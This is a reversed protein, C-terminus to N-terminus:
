VFIGFIVSALYIILLASMIRALNTWVVSKDDIGFEGFMSTKLLTHLFYKSGTSQEFTNINPQTLFKELDIYVWNNFNNGVMMSDGPVNVTLWNSSFGHLIPEQLAMLLGLVLIVVTFGIYILNNGLYSKLESFTFSKPHNLILYEVLIMPLFAIGTLKTLTALMVFILSAFFYKKVNTQYFKVAFYLTIIITLYSIPDNGIRSAHL